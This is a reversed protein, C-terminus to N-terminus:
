TAVKFVALAAAPDKKFTNELANTGRACLCGGEFRVEYGQDENWQLSGRDAPSLEARFPKGDLILTGRPQVM